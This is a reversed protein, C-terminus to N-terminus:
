SFQDTACVNGSQLSRAHRFQCVCWSSPSAPAIGHLNLDERECQIAPSGCDLGVSLRGHAKERAPDRKLDVFAPRGRWHTAEPEGARL